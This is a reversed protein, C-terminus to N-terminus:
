GMLVYNAVWVPLKEGNLPHIVFLGTPMGKKEMTAMDAEAVGGRLCEDIFARLEPKSAAAQTALAHEAAM